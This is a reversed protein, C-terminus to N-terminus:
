VFKELARAADELSGTKRLRDTAATFDRNQQAQPAMRQKQPIRPQPPQAAAPPNGAKQKAIARRYAAADALILAYRHDNVSGLEDDQLGYTERATKVIDAQWKERYAKDKLKPLANLLKTEEEAKWSSFQELAAKEAAEQEKQQQETQKAQDGQSAQWLEQLEAATKQYADREALYSLYAAPDENPDVPQPEKPLLKSALTLLVNRQQEVQKITDQFDGREKDFAKREESLATTKETFKRQFMNGAILESVSITTGDDLKVKADRSAFQGNKFAPEDPAPKGEDTDDLDLELDPDDEGEVPNDNAEESQSAAQEQGQTNQSEAVKASDQGAEELEDPVSSLFGEIAAVGDESSLATDAGSGQPSDTGSM